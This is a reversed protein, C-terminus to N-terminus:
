KNKGTYRSRLARKRLARKLGPGAGKLANRKARAEREEECWAAYAAYKECTGHCTPSRDPCDKVCPVDM